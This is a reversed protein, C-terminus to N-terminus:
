SEEWSFPLIDKISQKNQKLMLLRDFGVAVGCCDPLGKELAKLFNEDIPLPPAGREKRELNDKVFRNKQKTPNTLEHFGNALEMTNYYIEFREAIEIGNKHTTKALAAMSAPYETIVTIGQLKPEIIFGMFFDLMTTKNWTPDFSLNNKAAIAQFEKITATQYDISAFHQFAEQYTYFTIDVKPAFLCILDVTEEILKHYDWGIRYWEIMTFEINHRDGLEGDRFVHSLQYIDGSGEALLRKMAYEPSSHLYGRDGNAFEVRLIEIHPSIPAAHSLLPTDVEMVSRQAFFQRVKAAMQARPQLRSAASM